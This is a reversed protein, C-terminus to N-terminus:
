SRGKIRGSLLFFPRTTVRTSVFNLTTRSFYRYYVYLGTMMGTLIFRSVPMAMWVGDLSFFLPLIFLSAPLIVCDGYTLLSSAAIRGTAQYYYSGTKVMGMVLFAPASILLGHTALAATSEELGMCGPLIRCMLVSFSVGVIGLLLSFILGYRGFRHIREFDRAGFHFSVLPQMGSAVGQMIMSTLSEINCIAAYAALATPGGWHLAQINHFLLMFAIASQAGLSPIGQKCIRLGDRWTPFMQHFLFTLHCKKSGFYLLGLLLTGTEAAVTAWAAGGVGWQFRIVFLYDLIINSVAGFVMLWSSLAPQGDSRLVSALMVWLLMPLAGVIVVGIYLFSLPLIAPTAGLLVLLSRGWFAYLVILTVCLIFILGVGGSFARNAAEIDNEGRHKAVLIASGVGIMDGFGFMFCYIPFTLLCAALGTEGMAQGVFVGDMINYLGWVFMFFMTPIVYRFFQRLDSEPSSSMGM